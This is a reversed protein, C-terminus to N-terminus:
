LLYMEKWWSPADISSPLVINYVSKPIGNIRKSYKV